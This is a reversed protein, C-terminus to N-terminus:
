EFVLATVNESIINLMSDGSAFHLFRMGLLVTVGSSFM